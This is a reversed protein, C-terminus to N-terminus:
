IFRETVNVQLYPFLGNVSGYNGKTRRHTATLMRNIRMFVVHKNELKMPGCVIEALQWFSPIDLAHLTTEPKVETPHNM